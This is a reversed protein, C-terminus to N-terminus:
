GPARLARLTGIVATRDIAAGTERAATAGLLPALPPGDTLAGAPEGLHMECCLVFAALQSISLRATPDKDPDALLAVRQAVLFPTLGLGKGKRAYKRM